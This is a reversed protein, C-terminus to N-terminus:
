IRLGAVGFAPISGSPDTPISLIGTFPGQFPGIPLASVLGLATTVIPIAGATVAGGIYAAPGGAATMVGGLAVMLANAFVIIQEARVAHGIAAVGSTQIDLTSATQFVSADADLLLSTTDAQFSVQLKKPDVMMNATGTPDQLLIGATSLGLIQGIGDSITVNGMPDLAFSAGTPNQRVMYSGATELIYPTKLRRFSVKNQTVDM